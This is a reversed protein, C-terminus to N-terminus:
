SRLRENQPDFLPTAGAVAVTIPFREGMYQVALPTGPLALEVPLYAMLLYTGLSPAAGASTVWARRGRHDEVPRGNRTLIPERGLMYRRVGGAGVHDDVTLTCLRSVVPEARQRLYAAKGLFDAAKVGPRALGAELLTHGLDLEAGYARYGKELRASSFVPAMGGAILGFPRGADWLSRWLHAGLEMPAYIEWGLEGVYSMRNALVAIGDVDLNRCTGYAFAASSVPDPTLSGLIDRARPGWLGVTAWASTVDTLQASGDAPLHDAIWKRDRMGMGGGTVVRYADRGVHLVTLDAVIGGDQDLMPTYVTRGIPAEIRNVCLRELAALAGPGTVDFIAFTTLDVLAARDRMALHEATIIPSWWRRDWEAPRDIIRDRYEDVLGANSAYWWPCEWGAVEHFVAGLTREQEYMPPLRMGRDSSWQEGPHVIGYFKNFAESARARSHRWTRQHPYFRAIDAAHLDIELPKGDMWLAVNRTIAPAEKIWVAAVSWLGAVEPSEGLAPSWDPTISLLGNIAYQEGVREDGLIEPVLELADAYSQEFTDRTFPLETPSLVSAANPPIDDPHVIMPVHQYSGIELQSGNPREYMLADMDRLIPYAQEGRMGAFQPVPGVSVFQHVAPALPIHAGAMAAVRPSWVGCAVVVVDAEISGATTRVGAVRGDVLDIGTVETRALVQLAGMEIAAERMLTGARLSDVVGASPTYWGGLIVSEDLYPIIEKVGAPTLLRSEIGWSTALGQRRALEAMREPTRAVEMGGCRTFVGLETFQRISEVTCTSEEKTSDVPFCFNSAHGTSGGPNPMPGKDVLVLDRWGLRALQWAMANGVIGAGIIVARARRVSEM